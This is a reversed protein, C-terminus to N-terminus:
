AAAEAVVKKAAEAMSEAGILTLGSDALTKRSAVVNNGELRVVLPLKLQTVEAAAVIGEAITNCNMIGGFINVLIAKVNPDKLVIQFAATVQETSASGGVELCHFSM